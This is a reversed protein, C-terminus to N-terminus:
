NAVLLFSGRVGYSIRIRGGAGPIQQLPRDEERYIEVFVPGTRLKSLMAPTVPLKGDTVMVSEIVDNTRFATDTLMLQVRTRRKPFNGLQVDFGRRDATEPLSSLQFPQFSFNETFKNKAADTYVIAHKGEFGSLPRETEYFVGSLRASDPSLVEGDLSIGAGNELLMGKGDPGGLRFQMMCTVSEKEQDGTITYSIFVDSVRSKEPPKQEMGNCGALLLALVWVVSTTNNM